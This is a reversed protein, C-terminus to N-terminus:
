EEIAVLDKQIKDGVEDILKKINESHENYDM